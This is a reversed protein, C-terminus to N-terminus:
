IKLIAAYKTMPYIVGSLVYQSVSLVPTLWGTFNEQVPIRHMSKNNFTCASVSDETRTKRNEGEFAGGIEMIIKKEVLEPLQSDSLNFIDAGDKPSELIMSSAKDTGYLSKISIDFEYRSDAFKEKFENVVSKEFDAEAQSSETKPSGSDTSSPKNNGNGSCGTITMSMFLAAMLATITKGAVTM